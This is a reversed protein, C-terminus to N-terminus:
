SRATLHGLIKETIADPQEINALHAAEPIVVLVAGRIRRAIEEAHEPPTAQDEAAAIM